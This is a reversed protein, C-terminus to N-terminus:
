ERYIEQLIRQRDHYYFYTSLADDFDHRSFNSRIGARIVEMNESYIQKKRIAIYLYKAALKIEKLNSYSGILLVFSLNALDKNRFNNRSKKSYLVASSYDKQLYFEAAKLLSKERETLLYNFGAQSPSSRITDAITMYTVGLKISIDYLKRLTPIEQSHLINALFILGIVSTIRKKM